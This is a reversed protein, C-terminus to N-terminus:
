RQKKAIADALQQKNMSSYREVGLQKARKRLDDRTHGRMDVGGATAHRSDRAEAGSRAAQADSPGKREKAEWHDDVKEFGHKLSAYATRSAREGAGYEKEAAQLTKAYTRQAQESSRELTSPMDVGFKKTM